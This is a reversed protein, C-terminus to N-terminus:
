MGFISLLEDGSAQGGPQQGYNKLAKMYQYQQLINGINGFNQAAQQGYQGAQQGYGQAAQGGQGFGLGLANQLTGLRQYQEQPAALALGRRFQNYEGQGQQANRALAAGISADAIGRNGLQFRLQNAQQQQHQGIQEEAARLREQDQLSGYAGGVGFGPRLQGTTQQNLGAAEAYKQLLPQYLPQAQSFLQGQRAVLQAQRRMAEKQANAASAGAFYNGVLGAAGLGTSVPDFPM